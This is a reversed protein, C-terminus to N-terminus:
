AKRRMVLDGLLRMEPRGVWELGELAVSSSIEGRHAAGHLLALTQSRILTPALLEHGKAIEVDHEVLRIATMADVVFRTM